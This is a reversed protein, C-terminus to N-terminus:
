SAPVRLQKYVQITPNMSMNDATAYNSGDFWFKINDWEQAAYITHYIHYSYSQYGGTDPVFNWAEIGLKRRGDSAVDNNNIHIKFEHINTGGQYWGTNVQGAAPYFYGNSFTTNGTTPTNSYRGHYSWSSNGSINNEGSQFQFLIQSASSEDAWGKLICHYTTVNDFDPTVLLQKESGSPITTYVKERDLIWQAQDQIQTTVDAATLGAAEGGGGSASNLRITRAM